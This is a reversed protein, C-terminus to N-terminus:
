IPTEIINLIVLIYLPLISSLQWYSVEPAATMHQAKEYHKESVQMEFNLYWKSM